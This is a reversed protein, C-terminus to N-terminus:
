VEAIGCLACKRNIDHRAVVEGDSIRRKEIVGELFNNLFFDRGNKAPTVRTWGKDSPTPWWTLIHGEEDLRLVAKGAAVIWGDELAAVGFLRPQDPEDPVELLPPLAEDTELDHRFITRGGEALHAIMAGKRALSSVQHFGAHGGDSRLTFARWGDGERRLLNAAGFADDPVPGRRTHVAILLRGAEDFAVTGWPRDPLEPVPLREGDPSLRTLARATPDACWLSGDAPDLALGVLLGEQGTWLTSRPEFSANLHVIRGAGRHNRLDITSDDVDSAALLLDGPEFAM